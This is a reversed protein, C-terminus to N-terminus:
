FYSGTFLSATALILGVCISIAIWWQARESAREAAAYDGRQYKSNVSASFFIAVIGAIMNCLITVLISVVLYTRPKAPRDAPNVDHSQQRAYPHPAAQPEAARTPEPEPESQVVFIDGTLPAIIAPTWDGLGDYWVPTDPAINYKRLETLGKIPGVTEGNVVIFFETNEAAENAM